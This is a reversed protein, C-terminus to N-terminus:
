ENMKGNVRANVKESKHFHFQIAQMENVFQFKSDKIWENKWEYISKETQVNWECIWLSKLKLIILKQSIRHKANM